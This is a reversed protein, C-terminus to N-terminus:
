RTVGTDRRAPGPVTGTVTRGEARVAPDLLLPLGVVPLLWLVVILREGWINIDPHGAQNLVGTFAAALLFPAFERRRRLVGRAAALVAALLLPESVQRRLWEIWFATELHLFEPWPRARDPLAFHGTLLDQLSEAESPYHLLRALLVTGLAACGAVAGLTM